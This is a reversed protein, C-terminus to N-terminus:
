EAAEARLEALLFGRYRADHGMLFRSRRGAPVDGCGCICPGGRDRAAVRERHTQAIALLRTLGSQAMTHILDQIRYMRTDHGPLYVSGPGKPFKGCGCSCPSRADAAAGYPASREAVGAVLQEAERQQAERWPPVVANSPGGPMSGMEQWIFYRLARNIYAQYTDTTNAKFWDVIGADLRLTIQQKVPRLTTGRPPWEAYEVVPIDSTDIDEDGMNRLAEWDTPEVPLLSSTEKKMADDRM